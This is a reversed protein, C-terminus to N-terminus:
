VQEFDELAISLLIYQREKLLNVDISRRM